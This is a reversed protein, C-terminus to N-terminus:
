QLFTYCFGRDMNDQPLVSSPLCSLAPEESWPAHAGLGSPPPCLSPGSDALRPLPALFRPSTLAAPHWPALWAWLRCTHLTCLERGSCAPSCSLLLSSVGAQPDKGCVHCAPESSPPSHLNALSTPPPPHFNEKLYIIKRITHLLCSLFNPNSAFPAM